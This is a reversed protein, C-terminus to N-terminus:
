RVNGWFAKIDPNIEKLSDYTESGGMEPMIMDLLVMDIESKNKKYIEIRERGSKALVLKYGLTELPNIDYGNCAICDFTRGDFFRNSM